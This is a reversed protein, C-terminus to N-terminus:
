RIQFRSPLAHLPLYPRHAQSSSLRTHSARARRFAYWDSVPLSFDEEPVGARRALLTRDQCYDLFEILEPRVRDEVRDIMLAMLLKEPPPIDLGPSSALHPGGWRFFELYAPAMPSQAMWEPTTSLRVLSKAQSCRDQISRLAWKPLANSVFLIAFGTVEEQCYIPIERGFAMIVRNMADVKESPVMPPFYSSSPQRAALASLRTM